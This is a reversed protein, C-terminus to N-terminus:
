FLVDLVGNIIFGWNDFVEQVGRWQREVEPPASRDGFISISVKFVAFARSNIRPVNFFSWPFFSWASM